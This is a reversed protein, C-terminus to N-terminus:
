EPDQAEHAFDSMAAALLMAKRLLEGSFCTLASHSWKQAVLMMDGPPGSLSKQEVPMFDKHGREIAKTVEQMKDKGSTLLPRYDAIRPM